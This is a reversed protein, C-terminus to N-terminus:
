RSLTAKAENLKAILDDIDAPLLALGFTPGARTRIAVLASMQPETDDENKFVSADLYAYAEPLDVIMKEM